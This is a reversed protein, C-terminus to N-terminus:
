TNFFMVTDGSGTPRPRPPGFPAAAPPRTAILASGVFAPRNAISLLSPTRYLTAVLSSLPSVHDANTVAAVTASAALKVL